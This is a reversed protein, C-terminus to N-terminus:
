AATMRAVDGTGVSAGHGYRGQVDRQDAFGEQGFDVAHGVGEAAEAVAQATGAVPQLQHARALGAVVAASAVVVQQQDTAPRQGAVRAQLPALGAQVLQQAAPALALRIHEVDGGLARQAEGGQAGRPAQPNRHHATEVGIELLVGPVVARTQQGPQQGVVQAPEM